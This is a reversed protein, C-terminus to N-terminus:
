VVAGGHFGIMKELDAAGRLVTEEDLPRGILQVGMPLRQDTVGSPISIAPLGALNVPITFVDSLYMLLPDDTKEGLRFAPSPSTPVMILDCRDFSANFDAIVLSRVRQAKAYYADYYGASLVYTGLLIRRKVEEGFGEDRTRTYMTFLDDYTGTRHGYRVGDYRALNSSAEANAITYYCAIAHKSNPLTADVVSVNCRELADIVTKFNAEVLPDMGLDLLDWPVGITLKERRKELAGEFEPLPSQLSTADRPDRGCISSLVLACDRVSRTIPGIQDLSSAFAVLGYRSVRGYTPKMGVVGCFGAPQRISGGTDSGLAALATQAAVAAASGGSSGGPVCDLNWPNRTAGFASNETSSGMGFEDLNTKGAIIAGDRKLHGVVTADYPSVYGALIRSGCTTRKGKVTINDKLVIPLGAFRTSKYEGSNTLRKAEDLLDEAYFEIYARIKPEVADVASFLDNAVDLPSVEGKKVMAVLESLGFQNLGM